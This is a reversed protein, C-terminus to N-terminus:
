ESSPPPTPPVEDNRRRWIYWDPAVYVWYGTPLGTRGAYSSGTWRGYEHFRGYHAVDGRVELKDLLDSYRGRCAARERAVDSPLPLAPVFFHVSDSWDSLDAAAAPEAGLGSFLDVTARKERWLGRQLPVAGNAGGSPTTGFQEGFKETQLQLSRQPLPVQAPALLSNDTTPATEPAALTEFDAGRQLGRRARENSAEPATSDEISLAKLRLGGMAEPTRQLGDSNQDVRSESQSEKYYRDQDTLRDFTGTARLNRGHKAEVQLEPAAEHLSERKVAESGPMVDLTDVFDHLAAGDSLRFRHLNEHEYFENQGDNYAFSLAPISYNNAILRSDVPAPGIQLLIAAAAVLALAVPTMASWGRRSAPSRSADKRTLISVAVAPPDCASLLASRESSSLTQGVPTEADLATSVEGILRRFEDVAAALDPSAAIEREFSAREAETLEGLLWATIRPDDTIDRSTSM